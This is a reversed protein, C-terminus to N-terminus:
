QKSTFSVLNEENELFDKDKSKEEKEKTEIRYLAIDYSMKNQPIKKIAPLPQAILLQTSLNFFECTCVM